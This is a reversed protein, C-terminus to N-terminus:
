ALRPRVPTRLADLLAERPLFASHGAGRFRVPRERALWATM